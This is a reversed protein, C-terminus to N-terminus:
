PMLYMAKPRALEYAATRIKEASWDNALMADGTESRDRSGNWSLGLPLDFGLDFPRLRLVVADTSLGATGIAHAIADDLYGVADVLGNAKAEDATYISGDAVARLTTEDPVVRQRGAWLRQFFVDYSHDLLPRVAAIDEETWQRYVTNANDKDPSQTAVLVVPDVGVKEFLGGFTLAQVIVGISGTITTPEAFIYDSGCSVYVGGSAAVSGYSAVLPKGAKKIREIEYWIQDSETVGGGPSNVRFVVAKISPTHLIHETAERVFEAADADIVSDLDLIAVANLPSGDRYQSVEIKGAQQIGALYILGSLILLILLFVLFARLLRGVSILFLRGLSPPPAPLNYVIPTPLAVAAPAAAAPVGAAAGGNAISYPTPPIQSM